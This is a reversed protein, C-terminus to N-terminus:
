IAHLSLQKKKKKTSLFYEIGSTVNGSLVRHRSPRMRHVTVRWAEPVRRYFFVFSPLRGFVRSVPFWRVIYFHEATALPVKIEEAPHKCIRENAAFLVRRCHSRVTKRQLHITTELARVLCACNSRTWCEM